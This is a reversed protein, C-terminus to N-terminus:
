SKAKAAKKKAAVKKKAAKKKATVKKATVKKITAKKATASSRQAFNPSASGTKGDIEILGRSFDWSLDQNLVGKARAEGVTKVKFYHFFRERAASGEQKPNEEVRVKLKADDAWRPARGRPTEVKEGKKTTKKTAAMKGVGEPGNKVLVELTSRMRPEFSAVDFKRAAELNTQISAPVDLNAEVFGLAQLEYEIRVLVLHRPVGKPPREGLLWRYADRVWKAYGAKGERRRKEAIFDTVARHAADPYPRAEGLAAARMARHRPGNAKKRKAM